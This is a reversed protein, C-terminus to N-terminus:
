CPRRYRGSGCVCGGRALSGQADQASRFQTEEFQGVFQVLVEGGDALAFEIRRDAPEGVLVMLETEARQGNFQQRQVSRDLRAEIAERREFVV